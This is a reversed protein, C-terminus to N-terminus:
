LGVVRDVVIFRQGGQERIMWVKDGVALGNNITLSKTGRVTHTHGDASETKWDVNVSVTHSTVNRSLILQSKGLPMQQETTITLPNVATVTGIVVNVPKGAETADKAAKKIANVLENADAM